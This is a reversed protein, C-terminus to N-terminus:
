KSGVKSFIPGAIRSQNKIFPRVYNLLRLFKHLEKTEEIKGPFTIIKESIHPQLLIKGNGIIVGLFEITQQFLQM